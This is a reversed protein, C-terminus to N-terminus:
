RKAEVQGLGITTMRGIGGYFAYEALINVLSMWYRDYHVAVYRAHGRAGAIFGGNHFSVAESRLQYRGVAMAAEVYERLDESIAITSYANWKQALSGFVLGPLPISMDMENQKFVTPSAFRLTVQRMPNATAMLYPSALTQYDTQRAWKHDDADTYVADVTFIQGDIDVTKPPASARALLAECVTPEFATIRFWLDSEPTVECENKSIRNTGILTSCTYPKVGDTDHWQKALAADYTDLWRLMLAYIARGLHTPVANTEQAKVQIVMSLLDTM